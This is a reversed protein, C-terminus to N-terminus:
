QDSFTATEDLSVHPQGGGRKAACSSRIHDVLICRMLNAAIGVFHARDKGCGEQQGALRMYAEHVLATTQLTQGPPLRQLHYHAIRRLEDYVIPVLRDLAERQGGAWDRLLEGVRQAFSAM